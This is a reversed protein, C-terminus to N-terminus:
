LKIEVEKVEEIKLIEFYKDVVYEKEQTLTCFVIIRKKGHYQIKM